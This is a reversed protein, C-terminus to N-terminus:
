KDKEATSESKIDDDKKSKSEEKKDEKPADKSIEDTIPAEKNDTSDTEKVVETESVNVSDSDFDTVSLRASKGGRDRMYSLYNRRVKSRKVVEISSILPNHLMFTREVGIGSSVKRVTITATHSKLRKTRIVLGEFVQLREKEGEKIRQTVKVTDGSRMSPIAAKKYSQNIKDIVEQM